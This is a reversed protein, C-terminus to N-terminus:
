DRVIFLERATLFLEYADLNETVTEVTVAKEGGM